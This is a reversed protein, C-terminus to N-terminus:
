MARRKNTHRLVENITVTNKMIGEYRCWFEHTEILKEIDRFEELVKESRETIKITKFIKKDIDYCTAIQGGKGDTYFIKEM